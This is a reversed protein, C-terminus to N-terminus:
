SRGGDVVRLADRACTDGSVFGEEQSPSPYTVGGGGGGGLHEVDSVDDSTRGISRKAERSAVASRAQRRKRQVYDWEHALRKQRCRGGECTWMEMITPGIVRWRAVTVGALLALRREDHPLTCDATRWAAMLLLMYAGHQETTLHTTDALYSDVFLPIHSPKERSM